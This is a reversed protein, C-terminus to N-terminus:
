VRRVPIGRETFAAVAEDTAGTDTILLEIQDAPWTFCAAVVGLKSHDAVVIRRRGQQILVRDTAMEDPHHCTLGREAHIGNVGIFVKQPCFQRAAEISGAGVLSFWGARLFGGTVFVSLDPRNCLEMAVNVTNTVVTIGARQPINRTVLTTTTGSTVAITDGDEIMEAAAIAIRRKEEAHCGIQEKFTSDSRFPEYLLPELSIAGGHTRRLRGRQELARLDRRVSAGSIGLLDALDPVTVSGNQSLAELIKRERPTM